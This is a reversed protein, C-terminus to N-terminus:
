SEKWKKHERYRQFYKKHDPHNVIDYHYIVAGSIVGALYCLIFWGFLIM